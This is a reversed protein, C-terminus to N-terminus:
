SSCASSSSQSHPSLPQLIPLRIYQVCLLSTAALTLIKKRVWPRFVLHTGYLLNESFLEFYESFDEDALRAACWCPTPDDTCQYPNRSASSASHATQETQCRRCHESQSRPFVAWSTLILVYRDVLKCVARLSVAQLNDTSRLFEDMGELTNLGMSALVRHASNILRDGSLRALIARCILYGLARAYANTDRM